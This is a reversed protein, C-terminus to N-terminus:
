NKIIIKKMRIRIKELEQQYYNKNIHELGRSFSNNRIKKRKKKKWCDNM